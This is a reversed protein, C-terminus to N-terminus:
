RGFLYSLKSNSNTKENEDGKPNNRLLIGYVTCFFISAGAIHLNFTGLCNVLFALLAPTLIPDFERGYLHCFLYLILCCGIAGFAVYLDLYENHAYIYFKNAKGDDQYYRFQDSLFGLGGGGLRNFPMTLMQQWHVVRGSDKLAQGKPRIITTVLVFVVCACAFISFVLKKSGRLWYATYFIIGLLSSALGMTSNSIHAAFIAFPAIWILKKRFLAPITVALISASYMGNALSGGPSHGIEKLVRIADETNHGKMPISALKNFVHDIFVYYPSIGYWNLFFWITQIICAAALFNIFVKRNFSEADAICMIVLLGSALGIIQAQVAISDYVYCNLFTFLPIFYLIKPFNKKTRTTIMAGTIALVTFLLNRSTLLDETIKPYFYIPLLLLAAGWFFSTM